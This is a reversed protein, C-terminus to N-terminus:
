SNFGHGMSITSKGFKFITSREMAKQINVLTYTGLIWLFSTGRIKVPYSPSGAEAVGHSGARSGLPFGRKFEPSFRRHGLENALNTFM